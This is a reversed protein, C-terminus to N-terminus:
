QCGSREVYRIANYLSRVPHKRPRGIHEPDFFREIEAWERDSVDSPYGM